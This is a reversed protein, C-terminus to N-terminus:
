KCKSRELEINGVTMANILVLFTVAAIGCTALTILFPFCCIQKLVSTIKTANRLLEIGRNIRKGLYLIFILYVLGISGIVIATIRFFMVRDGGCSSEDM